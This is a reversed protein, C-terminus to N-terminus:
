TNGKRDPKKSVPVAHRRVFVTACLIALLLSGGIISLWVVYQAPPDIIHRYPGWEQRRDEYPLTSLYARYLIFGIVGGVIGSVAGTSLGVGPRGRAWGIGTGAVAGPLLALALLLVLEPWFMM